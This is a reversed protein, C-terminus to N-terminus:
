SERGSAPLSVCSKNNMFGYTDSWALGWDSPLFDVYIWLWKDAWFCLIRPLWCSLIYKTLFGCFKNILSWIFARLFTIPYSPYRICCRALLDFALNAPSGMEYTVRALYLNSRPVSRAVGRPGSSARKSNSITYLPKLWNWTARFNIGAKKSNSKLEDHPIM